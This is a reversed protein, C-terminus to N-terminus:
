KLKIALGYCFYGGGWGGTDNVCHLNIVGDAGKDAAMTTLAAIADAREDHTSVWFASHWTQTWIRKVVTYRDLTLETADYVNVWVSDAAVASGVGSCFVCALIAAALTSPKM